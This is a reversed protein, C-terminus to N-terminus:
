SLTRNGTPVPPARGIFMSLLEGRSSVGFHRYLRTAHEHVTAKSLALADAIEQESRGELLLGLVQRPRRPLGVLGPEGGSALAGGVLPSVLDHLYALLRRERPSFNADGHARHVWVTSVTRTVPLRRISFIYDDIGCERHVQTFAKSRTWVEPGGWIADRTLTVGRRDEGSLMKVLVPYEPKHEVSARQAYEAWRAEAEPSPWGLRHLAVGESSEGVGLGRLEAAIVVQAGLLGRAGEMLRVPWDDRDAGSELCHGLIETCKMVDSARVRSSPRM